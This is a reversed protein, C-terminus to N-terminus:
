VRALMTQTVTSSYYAIAGRVTSSNNLEAIVKASSVKPSFILIALLCALLSILLPSHKKQAGLKQSPNVSFEKATELAIM